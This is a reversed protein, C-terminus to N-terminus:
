GTGALDTLQKANINFETLIEKKLSDALLASHRDNQNIGAEFADHWKRVKEMLKDNQILIEENIKNRESILNNIIQNHGEGSELNEKYLKLEQEKEQKITDIGQLEARARSIVWATFGIQTKKLLLDHLEKDMRIEYRCKM